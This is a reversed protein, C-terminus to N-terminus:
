QEKSSYIMINDISINNGRHYFISHETFLVKTENAKDVLVDYYGMQSTDSSNMYIYIFTFIFMNQISYIYQFFM